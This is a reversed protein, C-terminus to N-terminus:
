IDITYSGGGYLNYSYAVCSPTTPTYRQRGVYAYGTNTAHGGVTTGAPVFTYPATCVPTTSELIPCSSRNMAGYVNLHSCTSPGEGTSAAASLQVTGNTCLNDYQTVQAWNANVPAYQGLVCNEQCSVDRNCGGAAVMIAQPSGAVTGNFVTGGYVPNTSTAVQM